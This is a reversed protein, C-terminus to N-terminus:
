FSVSEAPVFGIIELGASTEFKTVNEESESIPVAKRGYTYGKALEERDVDRKGGPASEDQVQYTRAMNIAALSGESPANDGNVVTASSQASSEAAASDSKVAFSSASPPAAVSTRPYREVNISLATDYNETDGLTLSGKYTPVPRTSKVRPMGLEETAQALTGFVGGAQETLSKLIRENERKQDTKEEEKYGYSTDDFDVGVVLLEISDELLKKAIDPLDDTDMAGRGNTVLVIQRIYQLKKCHSAIMQIAIVLASLADGNGTRSPKILGRLDRLNTMLIQNIPQLISIHQYGEESSLDNNTEDSRLAIVGIQATKRGNAITSTVRDWVYHMAWQLDSENRGGNHESMSKGVDIIFVTAEKTAM